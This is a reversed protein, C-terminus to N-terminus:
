SLAPSKCRRGVYLGRLFGRRAHGAEIAHNLRRQAPAAGTVERVLGRFPIFGNIVSQGGAEALKGVRNEKKVEGTNFDPGLAETLSHFGSAIKKCNTLAKLDYPNEAAAELVPPIRIKMAGVDKAPQSAIRGASDRAEQYRSPEKAAAGNDAPSTQNGQEPQGAGLLLLLPVILIASTKVDV